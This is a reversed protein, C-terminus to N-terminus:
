LQKLKSMLSRILENNEHVYVNCIKEYIDSSIAYNYGLLKLTPHISPKRGQNLIGNMHELNRIENVLSKKKSLEAEINRLELEEINEMIIFKNGNVM